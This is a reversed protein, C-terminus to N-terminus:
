IAASFLQSVWSKATLINSQDALRPNLSTYLHRLHPRLKECKVAALLSVHAASSSPRASSSTILVRHSDSCHGRRKLRFSSSSRLRSDFRRTAARICPGIRTVPPHLTHSKSTFYAYRTLADAQQTYANVRCNAGIRLNMKLKLGPTLHICWLIVARRSPPDNSFWCVRETSRSADGLLHEGFIARRYLCAEVAVRHM